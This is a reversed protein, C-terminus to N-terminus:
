FRDSQDMSYCEIAVKLDGPENVNIFPDYPGEFDIFRTEVTELFMKVSSNANGVLWAEIRDAMHIPWAAIPYHARGRSHAIVVDHEDGERLREVLDLPILPTDSPVSVLHTSGGVKFAWRLGALIGSLPGRGPHVGDSVIPLGFSQLAAENGNASIAVRDVQQVLRAAVRELLSIGGITLLFEDGGGMRRSRGGALLLGVASSM